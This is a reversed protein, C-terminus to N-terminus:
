SSMASVARVAACPASPSSAPAAWVASSKLWMPMGEKLEGIRGLSLHAMFFEPLASDFVVVKADPDAEVQDVVAELSTEVEPDYLNFPPNDFTVRWYGAGRREARAPAHANDVTHDPM